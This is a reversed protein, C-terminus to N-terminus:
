ASLTRLAAKFGAFQTKLNELDSQMQQFQEHTIVVTRTAYDTKGPMDRLTLGHKKAIRLALAKGEAYVSANWQLREGREQAHSAYWLDDVFEQLQKCTPIAYDIVTIAGEGVLSFTHTYRADWIGCATVKVAVISFSSQAIVYYEGHYGMKPPSSIFIVKGDYNPFATSQCKKDCM